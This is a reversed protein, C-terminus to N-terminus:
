QTIKQYKLTTFEKIDKKFNDTKFLELYKLKILDRKGINKNGHIEVVYQPKIMKYDKMNYYAGLNPFKDIGSPGLPVNTRFCSTLENPRARAVNKLEKVKRKENWGNLGNLDNFM